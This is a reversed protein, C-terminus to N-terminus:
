IARQQLPRKGLDDVQRNPSLCYNCQRAVRSGQAPTQRNVAPQRRPNAATAGAAAAAADSAANETIESNTWTANGYLDIGKYASMVPKAQLKSATLKFKASMQLLVPFLGPPYFLKSRFFPM